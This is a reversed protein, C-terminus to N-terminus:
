FKCKIITIYLYKVAILFIKPNNYIWYENKIYLHVIYIKHM